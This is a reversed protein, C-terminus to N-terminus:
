DQMLLSSTPECFTRSDGESSWRRIVSISWFFSSSFISTLILTDWLFM